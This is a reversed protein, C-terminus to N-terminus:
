GVVAIFRKRYRIQTKNISRSEENKKWKPNMASISVMIRGRQEEQQQNCYTCNGHLVWPNM